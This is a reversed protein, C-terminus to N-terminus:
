PDLGVIQRPTRPKPQPPPTAELGLTRLMRSYSNVFALYEKRAHPSMGAEEIFRKDLVILKLKLEALADILAVQPVSPTGGVHDILAARFRAADRREQSLGHLRRRPRSQGSNGPPTDLDTSSGDLDAPVIAPAAPM